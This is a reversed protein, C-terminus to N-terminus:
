LAKVREEMNNSIATFLRLVLERDERNAREYLKAAFDFLEQQFSEQAKLVAQGKESLTLSFEKKNTTEKIILNKHV